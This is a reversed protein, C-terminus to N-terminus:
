ELSNLNEGKLQPYAKVMPLVANEYFSEPNRRSFNVWYYFDKEQQSLDSFGPQQENWTIVPKDTMAPNPLVTEKFLLTKQSNCSIATLLFLFSLIQKVHFM